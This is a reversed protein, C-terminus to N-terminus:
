SEKQQSREAAKSPTERDGGRTTTAKTGEESAATGAGAPTPQALAGAAGAAPSSRRRHGGDRSRDGRGSLAREREAAVIRRRHTSLRRPHVRDIQRSLRFM